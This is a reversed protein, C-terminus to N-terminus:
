KIKFSGHLIMVLSKGEWILPGIVNRIKRPQFKLGGPQSKLEADQVVQAHASSPNHM